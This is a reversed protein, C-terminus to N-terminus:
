VAGDNVVLVKGFQKREELYRQAEVTEALPFTRDIIAHLKGEKFLRILDDFERRACGNSGLISLQKWFVSWIDTEGIRGSSGGCTVLRGTTRLSAISQKWTSQGVHEFVIDVGRNATIRRVEYQFNPHERYNITYDAGMERARELKDDSSSTAIVRCGFHKAIQVAASGVGSGVALVLVWEGPQIQARTVLMHWATGFAAPLASAEVFSINDPIRILTNEPAKVLEAFGGDLQVGIIKRNICLNDHGARCYDCTEDWTFAGVLVRDGIRYKEVESGIQVIMGSPELGGIHPLPAKVGHTGERTYIDLHNVGCAHVRVLVEQPGIQPDLVEEYRLVDLGGRKHFIAAKM